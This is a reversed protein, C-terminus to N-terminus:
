DVLPCRWRAERHNCAEYWELRAAKLCNAARNLNALEIDQLSAKSCTLLYELHPLPPRQEEEAAVLPEPKLEEPKM